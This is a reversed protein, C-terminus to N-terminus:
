LTSALRTMAKVCILDKLAQNVMLDTVDGDETLRSLLSYFERYSSKALILRLARICILNKAGYWAGNVPYAYLSSYPILSIIM